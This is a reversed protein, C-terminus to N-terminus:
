QYYSYLILLVGVYLLKITHRIHCKLLGYIPEETSSAPKPKRKEEIKKNM